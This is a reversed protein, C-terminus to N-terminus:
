KNFFVKGINCQVREMLENVSLSLSGAAREYLRVVPVRSEDTELFLRDLPTIRLAEEQYHEGFSLFFGQSVLQQALEKKGRFGHIVWGNGAALEKKVALIEQFTRVAHILLPKEVAVATEAQRRFVELQVKWDTKALRDLGCEGVALVQPHNLMEDFLAWEGSSLSTAFWPHFGM